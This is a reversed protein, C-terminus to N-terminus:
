AVISCARQGCFTQIIPYLVLKKYPIQRMWCLSAANWEKRRCGEANAACSRPQLLSGLLKVRQRSESVHLILSKPNVIVINSNSAAAAASEVSFILSLLLGLIL